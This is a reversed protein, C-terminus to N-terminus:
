TRKYSQAKEEGGFSNGEHGDLFQRKEGHDCNRDLLAIKASAVKTSVSPLAEKM